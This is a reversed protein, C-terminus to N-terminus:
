QADQTEIYARLRKVEALVDAPTVDRLKDNLEEVSAAVTRINESNATVAEEISNDRDDLRGLCSDIQDQAAARGSKDGAVHALGFTGLVIVVLVVVFLYVNETKRTM